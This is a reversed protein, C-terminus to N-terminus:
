KRQWFGKLALPNWNRCTFGIITINGETIFTYKQGTIMISHLGDRIIMKGVARIGWYQGRMEVFTKTENEIINKFRFM